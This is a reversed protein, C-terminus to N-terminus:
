INKKDTSFFHLFLFWDLIFSFTVVKKVLFRCELVFTVCFLEVNWSM